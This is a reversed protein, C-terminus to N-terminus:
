RKGEGVPYRLVMSLGLNLDVDPQRRYEAVYGWFVLREHEYALFYAETHMGNNMRYEDFEFVRKGVTVQRESLPPLSLREIVQARALGKDLASLQPHYIQPGACAAVAVALSLSTMWKLLADIM